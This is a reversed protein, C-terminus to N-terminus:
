RKASGILLRTEAIRELLVPAAPMTEKKTELMEEGGVALVSVAELMARLEDLAAADFPLVAGGTISAIDGFVDAADDYYSHEQRDHLIIVRTERRALKKALRRAEPKSEEFVDGVYVIVSVPEERLVRKFIDLLATTGPQCRVKAAKRWLADVDPVFETFTHVRSGGHVALAVLLEGPLAMFLADMVRQSAAWAYARSGTADVALVLRAADQAAMASDAEHLPEPPPDDAPPPAVTAPLGLSQATVAPAGARLPAPLAPTKEEASLGSDARRFLSPLKM